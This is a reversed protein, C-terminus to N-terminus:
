IKFLNSIVKLNLLKAFYKLLMEWEMEDRGMFDYPVTSHLSLSLTNIVIINVSYINNPYYTYM